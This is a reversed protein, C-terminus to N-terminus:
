VFIRINLNLESIVSKIVKEKKCWLMLLDSFFSAKKITVSFRIEGQEKKLILWLVLPFM